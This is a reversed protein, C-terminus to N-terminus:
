RLHSPFSKISQRVYRDGLNRFNTGKSETMQERPNMKEQRRVVYINAYVTVTVYCYYSPCNKDSRSQQSRRQTTILIFLYPPFHSEEKVRNLQSIRKHYSDFLHTKLVENLILNKPQDGVKYNQMLM